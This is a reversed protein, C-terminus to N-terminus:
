SELTLSFGLGRITAITAIGALKKRLHAIHVDIVNTGPDFEYGFAERLIDRRAVTQSRRAYLCLLLARERPSFAVRAFVDPLATSQAPPPGSWVGARRCLARLRAVLEVFAIPKVVYDDAGAELAEVRWAIADQATLVLVPMMRNQARLWRVIKVGNEDPLGLDLLIVDFATSDTLARAEAGTRAIAPVMGEERLGKGISNGLQVNDEVILVRHM